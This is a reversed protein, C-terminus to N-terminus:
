TYATHFINNFGRRSYEDTYNLFYSSVDRACIVYGRINDPIMHSDPRYSHRTKQTDDDGVEEVEDDIRPQYLRRTHRSYWQYYQPTPQDIEDGPHAMDGDLLREHRTFRLTIYSDYFVVWDRNKKRDIGHCQDSSGIPNLPVSQRFGYMRAVRAPHHWEIINFFIIPVDAKWTTERGELCTPNLWEFMTEDYPRWIFDGPQM